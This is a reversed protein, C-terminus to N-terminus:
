HIMILQPIHGGLMMVKLPNFSVYIFSKAFQKACLLYKIFTLEITVSFYFTFLAVLEENEIKKRSM